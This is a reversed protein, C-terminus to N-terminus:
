VTSCRQSGEHVKARLRADYVGCMNTVKVKRGGVVMLTAMTLCFLSRLEHQAVGKSLEEKDSSKRQTRSRPYWTQKASFTHRFINNVSKNHFFFVTSHSASETSLASLFLSTTMSWGIVTTIREDREM